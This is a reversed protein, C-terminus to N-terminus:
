TILHPPLHDVRNLYRLKTWQPTIDVRTIGTNHHSFRLHDVPPLHFLACLLSDAFGGHTVLAIREDSDAFRQRLQAAVRGARTYAAEDTEWPRNWWGEDTIDDPLIYDPFERQMESRTMGPLTSGDRALWIGGHEHIDTWVHVALHLAKSIFRATQLARRMPSTYLQTIGFGDLNYLTQPVSADARVKQSNRLHEAVRRAQEQGRETLPPDQVRAQVHENANNWSEGHRILYLEM